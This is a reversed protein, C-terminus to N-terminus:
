CVNERMGGFGNELDGAAAESEDATESLVEPLIAAERMKAVQQVPQQVTEKLARKQDIQSDPV